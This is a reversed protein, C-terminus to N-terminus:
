LTTPRGGGRGLCVCAGVPYISKRIYILTSVDTATQYLQASEVHVPLTNNLVAGCHFCGENLGHIVLQYVVQRYAHDVISRVWRLCRTRGPVSEVLCALIMNVDGKGWKCLTHWLHVSNPCLFNIVTPAVERKGCCYSIPCLEYVRYGM